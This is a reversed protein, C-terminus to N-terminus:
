LLVDSNKDIEILYDVLTSKEDLIERYVPNETVIEIFKELSSCIDKTLSIIDPLFIVVKDGVGEFKKTLGQAKESAYYEKVFEDDIRLFKNNVYQKSHESNEITYIPHHVLWAFSKPHKFFNAWRRIKVFPSFYRVRYGEPLKIIDFVDRIREWIGNLLLVYISFAQQLSFLGKNQSCIFLFKFVQDTLEDFNCGLCNHNRDEPGAFVDYIRCMLQHNQVSESFIGFAQVFQEQTLVEVGQEDAISMQIVESKKSVRKV